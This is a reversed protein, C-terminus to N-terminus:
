AVATEEASGPGAPPPWKKDHIVRVLLGVIAGIIAVPATVVGASSTILLAILGASFTLKLSAAVCAAIGAVILPTQLAPDVLLAVAAGVGVGMAVSPFIPGGRFGAGLAIGYVIMRGLTAIAVAGASQSAILDPIGGEGDFLVTELPLGSLRMTMLAVAVILAAGLFLVPVPHSRARRWAQWGIARAGLTIVAALVAVVISLVISLLPLRDLPPLGAVSLSHTGLGTYPGLGTMVLYGASLSVYIPTLAALPLRGMAAFELFLVATIFPNGLIAGIAAAGGLLMALQRTDAGAKHAVLGGLATGCAILPAEPGLPIALALTAMAALAVSAIQKPGNDFHLGTLPAAGTHGPLRQAVAVIAAAVLAWLLLYWWDNMDPSFRSPLDQWVWEQLINLVALFVSGVVAGGIGLGVALAIVAGMRQPNIELSQPATTSM